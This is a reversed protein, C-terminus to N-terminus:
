GRALTRRQSALAVLGMGVLGVLVLALSQPEPVPLAGPPGSAAFVAPGVVIGGIQQQYTGFHDLPQFFYYTIDADGGPLGLWTGVYFASGTVEVSVKTVPFALGSVSLSDLDDVTIFTSPAFLPRDISFSWHIEYPAGIEGPYDFQYGFLPAAALPSAFLGCALVMPTIAAASLLRAM